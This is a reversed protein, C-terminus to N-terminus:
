YTVKVIDYSAVPPVQATKDLHSFLAYSDTGRRTVASPFQGAADFTGTLTMTTWNDSSAVRFVKNQTNCATQLTNNDQLLLNDSGTLNVGPGSVRTFGAPNSLPIKFLTGDSTKSVLLYGDPHYVIGNLGFSGAPAAFAPDDLLVSVAGQPTVKFLVPAYSDTVYANGQADLAVDSAFHNGAPRAPVLDVDSLLQGNDRNFTLLRAVGGARLNAATALVRNRAADLYVGTTSAIYRTGAANTASAFVSYTGNDTVQGIDGVTASGILFRQGAPDYQLNEPYLNAGSVTVKNPNTATSSDTKKCAGGLLAAPLLAALALRRAPGRGARFPAYM